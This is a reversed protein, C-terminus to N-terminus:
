SHWRAIGRESPGVPRRMTGRSAIMADDARGILVELTDEARREAVGISITAGPIAENLRADIRAFRAIIGDMADGSLSCIFEDGGFRLILDYSRFEESVCSVVARLLADGAGHGSSDNFGKLGDVDIFVVTLKEKTRGTRDMERQLAILGVRRRLAGTLEDVEAGALESSYSLRDLAALERDNAAHARDEAAAKRQAAALARARAALRRRHAVRLAGNGNQEEAGDDLRRRELREIEEDLAAALEDRAESALDRAASLQDRQRAVRDRAVATHVRAQSTADRELASAARMRRTHEYRSQIEMGIGSAKSSGQDIEAAEQDHDAATQDRQSSVQDSESHAQDTDAADQEADAFDQGLESLARESEASSM